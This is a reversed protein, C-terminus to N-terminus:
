AEKLIWCKPHLAAMADPETTDLIHELPVWVKLPMWCDCAMCSKLKDETSLKLSLDNKIEILTGLHQGIKAEIRQWFDGLQNKPCKVCVKARKEALAQEVPKMGAGLWDTLLRVGGVAKTVKSVEAVLPADESQRPFSPTPFSPEASNDEVIFGNWGQAQCLKANYLDLEDAIANRTMAWNNKQALWSNGERHTLIQQVMSDFSSWKQPEFGTEPQLFRFGNPIQRTRDKLRTM